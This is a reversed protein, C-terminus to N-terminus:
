RLSSAYTLRTAGLPKINPIPHTYVAMRTGRDWM